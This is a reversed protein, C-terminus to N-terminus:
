ILIVLYTICSIYIHLHFKCIYLVIFIRTLFICASNSGYQLPIPQMEALQIVPEIVAAIYDQELVTKILRTSNVHQSKSIGAESLYPALSRESVSLMPCYGVLRSGIRKSLVKTRCNMIAVNCPWAEVDSHRSLHTKDM